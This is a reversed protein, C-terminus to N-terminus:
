KAEVWVDDEHVVVRFSGGLMKSKVWGSQPTVSRYGRKTWELIVLEPEDQRSDILWFERIGAQHYLARLEILDKRASSRSVVEVVIDPSGTMKTSRKGQNLVVQEDEISEKKVFIGDPVTTFESEIHSYLMGDTYCKGLGHTRNWCYLAETIATKIENHFAQEATHDIWVNGQLYGIKSKEPAEDSEAWRLFSNNDIVWAPVKIISDEFIATFAAPM